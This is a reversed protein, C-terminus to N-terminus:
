QNPLCLLMTIHPHSTALSFFLPNEVHLLLLTTSCRPLSAPWRTPITPAPQCQRGVSFCSNMMKTLHNFLHLYPICPSPWAVALACKLKTIMNKFHSLHACSHTERQAQESASNFNVHSTTYGRSLVLPLCLLAHLINAAFHTHNVTSNLNPFSLPVPSLCWHNSLGPSIVLASAIPNNSTPQLSTLM